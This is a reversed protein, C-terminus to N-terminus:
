RLTDLPYPVSPRTDRPPGPELRTGSPTTTTAPPVSTRRAGTGSSPVVATPSPGVAPVPAVYPAAPPLSDAASTDEERAVCASTLLAALVFSGHAHIQM